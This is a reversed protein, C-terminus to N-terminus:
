FLGWDQISRFESQFQRVIKDLERKRHKLFEGVTRSLRIGIGLQAAEACVGDIFWDPIGDIRRCWEAFYRSTNVVDLFCHRNGNTPPQGTIALRDKLERLRRTGQGRIAGVLAQDHDFIHIKRPVAPNDVRINRPHRDNNAILIDFLLIGTCIDAENAFCVDPRIDAPPMDSSSFKLSAFM